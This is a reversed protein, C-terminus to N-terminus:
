GTQLPSVSKSVLGLAITMGLALELASQPEPSCASVLVPLTKPSNKGYESDLRYFAAALTAFPASPFLEIPYNGDGVSLMLLLDGPGIMIRGTGNKKFSISGSIEKYIAISGGSAVVADELEADTLGPDLPRVILSAVLCQFVRRQADQHLDPMDSVKLLLEVEPWGRILALRAM